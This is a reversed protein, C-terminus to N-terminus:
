CKNIKNNGLMASNILYSDSNEPSSNLKFKFIESM